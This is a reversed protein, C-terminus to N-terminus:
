EIPAQSDAEPENLLGKRFLYIGTIFMYLFTLGFGGILKYTVWFDLDFNYAVLLNLAGALFFGFAWGYNIVRWVEDPAKIQAGLMRQILNKSTALQSIILAGSFLWNVITPKWQLFLENRFFLTMGGLVMSAWFTVKLERSIPKKLLLYVVVQLGVAAMLAATATYIDTNFYVVVFIPLPLLDWLQQM